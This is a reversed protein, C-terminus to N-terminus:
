LDAPADQGPLILAQQSTPKAKKSHQKQLAGLGILARRFIFHSTYCIGEEHGEEEKLGSERLIDSAAHLCEHLLICTTEADSPFQKLFIISASCKTRRLCIGRATKYEAIDDEFERIKKQRLWVLADAYTIPAVVYVRDDFIGTPICVTKM